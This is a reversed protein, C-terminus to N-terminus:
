TATKYGMLWGVEHCEAEASAKKTGADAEDLPSARRKVRSTLRTM